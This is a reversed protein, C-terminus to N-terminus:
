FVGGLGLRGGEPSATLTPALPVDRASQGVFYWTALGATVAGLGISTGLAAYAQERATSFDSRESPPISPRTNLESSLRDHLAIAHNELIAALVTFIVTLGGAGYVVVPSFPHLTQRRLDSPTSQPHAPASPPIRAAVPPSSAAPAPPPTPAVQVVQGAGVRVTRSEAEPTNPAFTVRHEGPNVWAVYPAVRPDDVDVQVARAPTGPEVQIRGRTAALGAIRARAEAEEKRVVESLAEGTSRREEVGSLFAQLREAAHTADGLEAYAVGLDYALRYGDRPGLERYIPEWYGVAETLAGAQYRDMGLRFRERYEVLPDGQAAPQPPAAFADTAFVVAALLLLESHRRTWM